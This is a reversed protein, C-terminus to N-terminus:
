TIGVSPIGAERPDYEVRPGFNGHPGERGGRLILPFLFGM